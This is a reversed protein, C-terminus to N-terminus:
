GITVSTSFQTPDTQDSEDLVRYYVAIVLAKSDDADTECTVNTVDIDDMPELAEHVLLPVESEARYLPMRLAENLRSGLTGGSPDLLWQGQVILLRTRIRQNTLASGTVRDLDKNPAIKLDGKVFDFALDVAM